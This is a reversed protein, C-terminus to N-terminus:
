VTLEAEKKAVGAMKVSIFCNLKRHSVIDHEVRRKCKKCDLVMAQIFQMLVIRGSRGWLIGFKRCYTIEEKKQSLRYELLCKSKEWQYTFTYIPFSNIGIFHDLRANKGPETL